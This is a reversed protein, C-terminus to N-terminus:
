KMHKTDASHSELKPKGWLLHWYRGLIFGCIGGALLLLLNWLDGMSETNLYPERAPQGAKAALTENITEDMGSFRPPASNRISIDAEVSALSLSDAKSIAAYGMGCVWIMVPLVMYLPSHRIAKKAPMGVLREPRQRCIYNLVLEAIM